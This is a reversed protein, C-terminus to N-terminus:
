KAKAAKSETTTEDNKVHVDLQNFPIEIGNEDLAKKISDLLAYYVTWYDPRNCWVRVTFDLSSENLQSMEVFPAPDKFVLENESCTKAILQKVFAVDSGYAVQTLIDVRRTDKASANVIVNNALTGNPIVVAKNDTTVIHTYFLKIDEVTGEHGNSTIYDGIRFPRMVIIIVGGAFNSLTGQVALSIGVGISAIVASISATAIGVYGILCVLVLVKLVIRMIQTGVRSLTEDAKKKQLRKYLKKTVGNIIAFSIIMLVIAIVLKIGTGTMWNVITKWVEGWDIVKASTGAADAAGDTAPADTVADLLNLYMII